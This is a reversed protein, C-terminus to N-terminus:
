EEGAEEEGGDDADENEWSFRLRAVEQRLLDIFEEQPMEELHLDMLYLCHQYIQEGILQLAQERTEELSGGLDLQESEEHQLRTYFDTTALARHFSRDFKEQQWRKLLRITRTQFGALALSTGALIVTLGQLYLMTVERDM